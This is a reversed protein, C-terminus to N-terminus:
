VFKNMKYRYRFTAWLMNLDRAAARKSPYHIGNIVIATGLKKSIKQKVEQSLKKGFNPSKEGIQRMSIQLRNLKTHKMGKFSPIYKPMIGKQRKSMKIKAEKSHRYGECGEGGSTLNVLNCGKNKYFEIYYAEKEKWKDGEVVDIQEMLFLLGKNRLSVIWSALHTGKEATLCKHSRFRRKLCTTKGVYRVELTTPDKLVYIYTKLNPKEM